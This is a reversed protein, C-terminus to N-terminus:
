VAEEGATEAATEEAGTHAGLILDAAKQAAAAAQVVAKRDDALHKKWSAIYAASQPVNVDVGVAGCVFAATMEAVLEERSYDESGFPAPEVLTKRGLRQEHGTSHAYEHFLVAYYTEASDFQGLQPMQVADLGPSYYARDGGHRLAPGNRKIRYGDSVAECDAITDHDALDVSEDPVNLGDCQEVNFVTFERMLLYDRREREGDVEVTKPIPKWLIIKTGTEGKRVGGTFFVREGDVVEYYNTKGRGNTEEVIERGAARAAAVAAQKAQKFTVWYRSSYGRQFAELTLIFVNIGRYEKGSALSAPGGRGISKWPKHWPVIGEDLAALIRDTVAQYVDPKAAEATRKARPRRVTQSAM